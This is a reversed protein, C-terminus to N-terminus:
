GHERVLKKSGAAAKPQESGRVHGASGVLHGHGVRICCVLGKSGVLKVNYPLARGWVEDVGLHVPIPVTHPDCCLASM